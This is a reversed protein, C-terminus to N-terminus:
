IVLFRTFANLRRDASLFFDIQWFTKKLFPKECVTQCICSAKASVLFRNPLSCATSLNLTEVLVFILACDGLEERSYLVTRLTYLPLNVKQSLFCSTKVTSILQYDSLIFVKSCFTLKYRDIQPFLTTGSTIPTQIEHGMARPSGAITYVRTCLSTLLLCMIHVNHPYIQLPIFGM